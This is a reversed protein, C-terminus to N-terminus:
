KEEEVKQCTFEAGSSTNKYTALKGNCAQVAYTYQSHGVDLCGTLLFMLGMVALAKM